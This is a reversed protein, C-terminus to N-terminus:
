AAAEVQLEVLWDGSDQYDARVLDVVRFGAGIAQGRAHQIADTREHMLRSPPLQDRTVRYTEFRAGEIVRKAERRQRRQREREQHTGPRFHGVRSHRLTM